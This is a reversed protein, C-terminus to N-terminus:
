FPLDEDPLDIADLNSGSGLSSTDDFRPSEVVDTDRRPELFTISDVV